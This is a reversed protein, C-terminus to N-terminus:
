KSESLTSQALKGSQEHDVPISRTMNGRKLALERAVLGHFCGHLSSSVDKGPPNGNCNMKVVGGLNNTEMVHYTIILQLTTIKKHQHHYM